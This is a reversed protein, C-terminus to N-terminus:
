LLFNIRFGYFDLVTFTREQECMSISHNLPGETKYFMCSWSQLKSVPLARLVIKSKLFMARQSIIGNAAVHISMSIIMRLSTLSLYICNWKYTSGLLFFSIYFCKCFLCLSFYKLVLSVIVLFYIYPYM